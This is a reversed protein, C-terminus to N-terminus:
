QGNAESNSENSAKQATDDSFDHPVVKPNILPDNRM